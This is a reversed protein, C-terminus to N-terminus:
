STWEDALNRAAAMFEDLGADDLRDAAILAALLVLEVRTVTKGDLDDATEDGVATLLLREAASPDINEGGVADIDKRTDAVFQIIEAFTHDKGFRRDAAEFFAAGILAGYSAWGDSERVHRIRREYEEVDDALIARMAAVHGEPIVATM